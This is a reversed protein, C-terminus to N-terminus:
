IKVMERLAHRPFARDDIFVVKEFRDRPDPVERTMTVTGRPGRAVRTVRWVDGVYRFRDGPRVFRVAADAAIGANRKALAASIEAELLAKTKKTGSSAIQGMIYARAQRKAAAIRGKLDLASGESVDANTVEGSAYHAENDSDPGRVSWTAEDTDVMAKWTGATSDVFLAPHSGPTWKAENTFSMSTRKM